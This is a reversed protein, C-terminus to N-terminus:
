GQKLMLREGYAAETFAEWTQEIDDNRTVAVPVM